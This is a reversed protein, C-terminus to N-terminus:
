GVTYGGDAVITQGSIYDSAGSALFLAVKAIDAPNGFRGVNSRARIGELVANIEDQSPQDAADKELNGHLVGGPAIANVSIGSPGLERALTVTLGRIASKSASYTAIGLPMTAVFGEISGINVIKGKTGTRRCSEVFDRCLLLPAKMNVAALQDIYDSTLTELPHADILAANNILIDIRGFAAKARPVIQAVQEPDGLDAALFEAGPAAEKVSTESNPRRAAAFVKAGSRSLLEVIGLGIGGGAGTVIAVKDRISFVDPRDKTGLEM